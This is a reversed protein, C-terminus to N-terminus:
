EPLEPVQCTSALEGAKQLREPIAIPSDEEVTMFMTQFAGFNSGYESIYYQQAARDNEFRKRVNAAHQEAQEAVLEALSQQREGNKVSEIVFNVSSISDKAALCDILEKDSVSLDPSAYATGIWFFSAFIQLVHRYVVM